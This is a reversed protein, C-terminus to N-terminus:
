GEKFACPVQISLDQRADIFKALLPFDAGYRPPSLTGVLKEVYKETVQALTLGSLPGNQVRNDDFVQWSEAIREPHPEPLGLFPALKRGGWIRGDLHRELSLPYLEM